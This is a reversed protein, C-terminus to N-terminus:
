QAEKEKFYKIAAEAVTLWIDERPNHYSYTDRLERALAVVESRKAEEEAELFALVSNFFESRESVFVKDALACLQDDESSILSGKRYVNM